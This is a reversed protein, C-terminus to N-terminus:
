RTKPAQTKKPKARAKAPAKASAASDTSPQSDSSLSPEGSNKKGWEKKTECGMNVCMRYPRRKMNQVEIEPAGCTACNTGKPTIRGKQPLPYSQTCNPYGSCGVFRKGTKGFRTLLESGCVKCIGIISDSRLAKRLEVRVDGRSALLAELSDQLFKRANTVVEGKKTKGAAVEDMEKELEATLIPQVIKPAHRDFADVVAFAIQAPEIAKAGEIYKRSYLKQIIEHRTAKTGLGQKEMETILSGQTYRAPPETQKSLVDMKKLNVRDGKELPPLEVDEAKSYKYVAKWGLKVYTQGRAVFSQGNLDIEVLVNETIADEAVTALFRRVILEYIKWQPPSLQDQRAPSVPHIPPHDKTEKGASPVIKPQALIKEVDSSFSSVTKLQKLLLPIDLSPPYASNDTRPYSTYGAQYLSEAVEMAKGASFGIGTAAKIFLTTNFPIPRELSRMKKNVSVVTGIPPEKSALVAEAEARDLFRGRKHEADFTQANREFQAHVEWYHVPVFALREKERNVILGLTPGQVRGMSLFEKGMKGSTISLYRTLVSGWVLDIERRANASDAFAFDVKSLNSFATEIDKPTMASFYARALEFKPNTKWLSELAEVGIAEGERDADTAVIVSHTERGMSELALCIEKETPIYDLPAHVLEKLDTGLWYAYKKPFDVDKVHGRLPVVRAPAGKWEFDYVPARGVTATRTRGNSLIDAIRKGAIPKEAIILLM